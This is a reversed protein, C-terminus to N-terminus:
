ENELKMHHGRAVLADIARKPYRFTRPGLVVRPILGRKGMKRITEATLGFAEALEKTTYGKDSHKRARVFGNWPM